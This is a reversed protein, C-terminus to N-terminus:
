HTKIDDSLIKYHFGFFFYHCKVTYIQIHSDGLELILESVLDSLSAADANSRKAADEALEVVIAVLLKIQLLEGFSQGGKPLNDM